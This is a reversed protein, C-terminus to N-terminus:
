AHTRIPAHVRPLPFPPKPLSILCFLERCGSVGLHEDSPLIYRSGGGGANLAGLRQSATHDGDSQRLRSRRRPQHQHQHQHRCQISTGIDSTPPPLGFHNVNVALSILHPSRPALLSSRPVLFSCQTPHSLPRPASDPNLTHPQHGTHVSDALAGGLWPRGGRIKVQHM